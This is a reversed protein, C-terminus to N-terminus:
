KGLYAAIERVQQETLDLAMMQMKGKDLQSVIYSHTMRSLAFRNQCNTADAVHSHIKVLAPTQSLRVMTSVVLFNDRVSSTRRAM